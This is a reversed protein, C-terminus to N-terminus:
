GIELLMLPDLSFEQFRKPQIDIEMLSIEANTADFDGAAKYRIPICEHLIWGKGFGRVIECFTGGPAAGTASGGMDTPTMSIANFHILLFTREVRDVGRMSRSIWQWMTSDWSASGRTLTMPSVTAGNTFHTTYTGALQNVAVPELTVEPSTITNFGYLASGLTFFPPRSSISIETLWFTYNQLWDLARTRAM